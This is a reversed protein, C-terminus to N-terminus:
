MENLDPVNKHGTIDVIMQKAEKADITNSGDLTM